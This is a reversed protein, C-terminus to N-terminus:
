PAETVFVPGLTNDPMATCVAFGSCSFTADPVYPMGHFVVAARGVFAPVKVHVGDALRTAGTVPLGTPTWTAADELPYFVGFTNALMGTPLGAPPVVVIEDGAHVMGDAPVALTAGGGPALNDFEGHSVVETGDHVEVTVTGVTPSPGITIPTKVCGTDDVAPAFDQGNVFLRASAPLASCGTAGLPVVELFLVLATYGVDAPTSATWSWTAAAGVSLLPRSTNDGGCGCLGCAWAFALAVIAGHRAVGAEGERM